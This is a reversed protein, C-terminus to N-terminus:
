AATRRPSSSSRRARRCATRSTRGAPRRTSRLTGPKGERTRRARTSSRRRVPDQRRAHVDPRVARRRGPVRFFCGALHRAGRGRDRDGLRRRHPRHAKANNGDTAIWLRGQPTSPATTRCASGATRADHRRQLHRRGRRHQSRRVQGPHGLRVQDAAHDGDPPTMEVIHGFVNEAAPQRRRGAGAKRQNNNTLMLYVKSTKPNVEVDEPRDM